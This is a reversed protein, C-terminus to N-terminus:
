GIGIINNLAKEIDCAGENIAKEVERLDKLGACIDNLGERIRKLNQFIDSNGQKRNEGDM